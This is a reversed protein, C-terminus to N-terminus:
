CVLYVLLAGLGMKSSSPVGAPGPLHDIMSTNGQLLQSTQYAWGCMNCIQKHNSTPTLVSM